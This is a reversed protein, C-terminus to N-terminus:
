KRKESYALMLGRLVRSAGEIAERPQAIGALGRRLPRFWGRDRLRVPLRRHHVDGLDCSSSPRHRAAHHIQLFVRVGALGRRPLDAQPRRGRPDVALQDSPPAASTRPWPCVRSSSDRQRAHAASAALLTKKLVTGEQGAGAIAKRGGAWATGQAPTM